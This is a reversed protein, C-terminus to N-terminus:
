LWGMLASLGVTSLFAVTLGFLYLFPFMREEKTLNIPDGMEKKPGGPLKM